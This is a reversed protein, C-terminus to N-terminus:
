NATGAAPGPQQPGAFDAKGALVQEYVAAASGGIEELRSAHLARTEDDWAPPVPAEADGAVAARSDARAQGASGWAHAFVDRDHPTLRDFWDKNAVIVGARYERRLAPDAWGDDYWELLSLNRALFLKRYTEFVARDLVHDAEDYSAFLGPLRLVALEPVLAEAAEPPLAAVQLTGDQVAAAWGSAPGAESPGKITVTFQPAWIKVNDVFRQWNAQGAGTATAAAAVSVQYRTKPGADGSPSGCAALFLAAALCTLRRM